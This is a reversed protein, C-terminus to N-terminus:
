SKLYYEAMSEIKFLSDYIITFDPRLFPEHQWCMCMLDLYVQEARNLMSYEESMHDPLGPRLRKKTVQLGLTIINIAKADLYEHFAKKEFFLEYMIMGFSYVDCREDYGTNLIIEPAM